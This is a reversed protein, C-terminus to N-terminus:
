RRISNNLAVWHATFNLFIGWLIVFINMWVGLSIDSALYNFDSLPKKIYGGKELPLAIQQVIKSALKNPDTIDKMELIQDRLLIKFEEADTWSLISVWDVQPFQSAGIVVIVDNQKGYFWHQMLAYFFAQDNTDVVYLLINVEKQAGLYTLHEDFYADVQKKWDGPIKGKPDIVRNIEIEGFGGEYVRPYEVLLDKFHEYSFSQPVVTMSQKRLNGYKKEVAAWIPTKSPNHITKYMNGDGISIQDPRFIKVKEKNQFYNAYNQFQNESLSITDGTTLSVEWYPSHYDHRTRTVYHTCNGDKDRGGCEEWTVLETWEEYYRAENSKGNWIEFDSIDTNLHFLSSYAAFLGIICVFIQVPFEEWTFEKPYKVKVIIAFVITGLCMWQFGPNHMVVIWIIKFLEPNLFLYVLICLFISFIMASIGLFWPIKM